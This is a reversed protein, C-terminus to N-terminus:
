REVKLVAEQPAVPLAAVLSVVVSVGVWREVELTPASHAVKSVAESHEELHAVVLSVLEGLFV